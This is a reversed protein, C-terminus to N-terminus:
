RWFLLWATVGAWAGSIAALGLRVWRKWSWRRYHVRYDAGVYFGDEEMSRRLRRKIAQRDVQVVIGRRQAERMGREIREAMLNLDCVEEATLPGARVAEQTCAAV